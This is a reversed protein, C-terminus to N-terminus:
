LLIGSTRVKRRFAGGTQHLDVLDVTHLTPLSEIRKRIRALRTANVRTRSDIALDIDSRAAAKGSVWSGFWIVEAGPGLESRM